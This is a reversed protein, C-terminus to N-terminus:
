TGDTACISSNSTAVDFSSPFIVKNGYVKAPVPDKSHCFYTGDSNKECSDVEIYTTNSPLAVPVFTQPPIMRSCTSFSSSTCSMPNVIGYKALQQPHVVHDCIRIRLYYKGYNNFPIIKSTLPNIITDSACNISCMLVSDVACDYKVIHDVCKKLYILHKSLAGVETTTECGAQRLCKGFFLNGCYCLTPPDNAPGTYLQCKLFENECLQAAVTDCGLPYERQWSRDVSVSSAHCVAAFYCLFITLRLTELM